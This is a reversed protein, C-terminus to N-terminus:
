TLLPLVVPAWEENWTSGRPAVDGSGRADRVLSLLAHALEEASRFGTLPAGVERLAGGYDFALVRAGCALMEAIKIPIDLGSSSHHLSLGADASALLAIYDAEDLWPSSVTIHQLQLRELSELVDERREGYGTLAIALRESSHLRSDCIRLAEALIDFADDISFSSPAAVLPAAELSRRSPVHFRAPAVDRLVAADVRLWAAMTASVALHHRTRRAIRREVREIWTAVFGSGLRQAAMAATSNHWDVVLRAGTMRAYVLLIPLAPFLPPTQALIADARRVRMLRWVLAVALLVQRILGLPLAAAGRGRVGGFGPMTSITADRVAEPLPAGRFGVIEVRFRHELAAEAHRLM